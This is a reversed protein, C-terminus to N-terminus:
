VTFQVLRTFYASHPQPHANYEQIWEVIKGFIKGVNRTGIEYTYKPVICIRTRM